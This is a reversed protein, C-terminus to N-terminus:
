CPGTLLKGNIKVNCICGSAFQFIFIVIPLIKQEKMVTFRLGMVVITALNALFALTEFAQVAEM